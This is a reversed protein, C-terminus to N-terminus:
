RRIVRLVTMFREREALVVRTARPALSELVEPKQWEGFSQNGEIADVAAVWYEGPPLGIVEFGGDQSPRGFKLFRSNAFWKTRDTPFVIVSYTAVPISRADTVHGAITGGATSIVAEVGQITQTTVGFDFPSDTADVGDIVLSQLYWEVGSGGLFFRTPGFLGSLRFTGDSNTLLRSPVQGMVPTRDFDAPVARLGLAPGRRALVDYGRKDDIVLRGELTSGAATQVVVPNPDADGVTVFEVGFQPAGDSWPKSVKLVYEGPPVDAITFSGDANTRIGQRPELAIGGSRQSAVLLVDGRVPAGSADLAIGTVRAALEHRFALDVGAVDRDIETQVPVADTLQTSGPYYIPAYGRQNAGSITATDLASILYSGPPLGYLRYRGRDDTQAFRVITATTRGDAYRLQIARVVAGEIEEGREDTITGTVARGRSLVFDANDFTEHDRVVVQLGPEAARSQGYQVTVYGLSGAELAYSGAHLGDIVFRGREDSIATETFERPSIAKVVVGKIPRKRVDLIRGRIMAGPQSSAPANPSVSGESRSGRSEVLDIPGVDDGERVDIASSRLESAGPATAILQYRGARLGGFRFDGLDNTRTEFRDPISTDGSGDVRVAVLNFDVAPDGSADTVHGVISSSRNLAIPLEDDTLDARRLVRQATAFGAKTVVLMLFENEPIPLVFHGRDDAFVVEGRKLETSISIRARPLAARNEAAVVRGRISRPVQQARGHAPLTLAVLAALAFCRYRVNM